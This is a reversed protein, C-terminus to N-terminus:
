NRRRRLALAAAGLALLGLTGPEPVAAVVEGPPQTPPTENNPGGDGPPDTPGPGPGLDTPGQPEGPTDGGKDGSDDGPNTPPPDGAEPDNTGPGPPTVDGGTPENAPPSTGEDDNPPTPQDHPTNDGAHDDEDAGNQNDDGGGFGGGQQIASGGGGGFNVRGGSRGRGDGVWNSYGGGSSSAVYNGGEPAAPGHPTEGEPSASGGALESDDLSLDDHNYCQGIHPERQADSWATGSWQVNSWHLDQGSKNAQHNLRYGNPSGSYAFREGTQMGEGNARTVQLYGVFGLGFAALATTAAVIKKRSM